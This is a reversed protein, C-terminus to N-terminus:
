NSTIQSIGTGSHEKGGRAARPDRAGPRVHGEGTPGTQRAKVQVLAQGGEAQTGHDDPKCPGTVLVARPIVKHM